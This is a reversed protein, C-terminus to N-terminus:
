KTKLNPQAEKRVLNIPEQANRILKKDANEIEETTIPGGKRKGGGWKEHVELVMGRNKKHKQSDKKRIFM